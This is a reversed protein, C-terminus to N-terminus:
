SKRTSFLWLTKFWVQLPKKSSHFITGATMSHQKQCLQCVYLGRSSKWFAPHGCDPCVFGEPWRLQFLYDLCATECSFRRDFELENKPFDENM